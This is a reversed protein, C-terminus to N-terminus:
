LRDQPVHTFYMGLALLAAISLYMTALVVGRGKQGAFEPDARRGVLARIAGWTFGGDLPAVPLLNILNLLFATYALAVILRSEIADGVLWFALAGLGGLIPGALSILGNRWPDRPADKIAVYAGLFPIFV